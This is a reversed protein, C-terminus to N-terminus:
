QELELKSVCCCAAQRSAIRKGHEDCPFCSVHGSDTVHLVLARVREDNYNNVFVITKNLEIGREKLQAEAYAVRADDAAKNAKVFANYACEEVAILRNLQDKDM